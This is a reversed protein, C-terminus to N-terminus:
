EINGYKEQFYNNLYSVIEERKFKCELEKEMSFQIDDIAREYMEIEKDSGEEKEKLYRMFCEGHPTLITEYFLGQYIDKIKKILGM